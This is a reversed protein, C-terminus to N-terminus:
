AGRLKKDAILIITNDTLKDGMSVKQGRVTVSCDDVSIGAEKIADGVTAGENLTHVHIIKGPMRAVRVNLAM